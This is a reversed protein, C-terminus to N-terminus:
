SDEREMDNQAAADMLADDATALKGFAVQGVYVIALWLVPVVLLPLQLLVTAHATAAAGVWHMSCRSCLALEGLLGIFRVAKLREFFARQRTFISGNLWTDVLQGCALGYIVILSLVEFANTFM